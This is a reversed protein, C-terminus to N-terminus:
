WSDGKIASTAEPTLLYCAHGKGEVSSRCQECVRSIQPDLWTPGLPRRRTWRGLASRRPDRPKWRDHRSERQM